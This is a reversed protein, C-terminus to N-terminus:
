RKVIGSIKIERNKRLDIYEDDETKIVPYRSENQQLYVVEAKRGDSLLIRHSLLYDRIRRTFTDVVAIDLKGVMDHLMSEALYFPNPQDTQQSLTHFTDALTIIRAFPHIEGDRLKRPFGSGDMFEHHQAVAALIDASVGRLPSLIKMGEEPHLRYIAKETDTQLNLGSILSLPLSVKGIDHMLAALCLHKIDEPEWDMWRAISGAIASVTVAHQGLYDAKPSQSELLLYSMTGGTTVLSYVAYSAERFDLFLVKRTNRYADFLDSVTDSLRKYKAAFPTPAPDPTVAPVEVAAATEQSADQIMVNLIDWTNLSTIMSPTLVTGAALLIRRRSSMIHEGLIMGPQVESIPVTKVAM